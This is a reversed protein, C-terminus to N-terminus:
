NFEFKSVDVAFSNFLIYIYIYLTSEYIWYKLLKSSYIYAKDFQRKTTNIMLEIKKLFETLM